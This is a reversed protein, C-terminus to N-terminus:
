KVILNAPCAIADMDCEPTASVQADWTEVFADTEGTLLGEGALHGAANKLLSQLTEVSVGNTEYEVEIKLTLTTKM